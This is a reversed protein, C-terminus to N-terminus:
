FFWTAQFHARTADSVEIPPNMPKAFTLRAQARERLAFSLGLGASTLTDVGRSNNLPRFPQVEGYDVFAVLAGTWGADSELKLQRQLELNLTWGQDGSFVGPEFGRVSGEGGIQIQESSPLLKLEAYQWSFSSNLTWATDFSRSHRVAGRMLTYDRADSGEPRNTGSSVEATINLNSQSGLLQADLGLTGGALEAATLEVGSIWNATHRQKMTALADIQVDTSVKLPHRVSLTWGTAQGTIDLAAIPGDIIRTDDSNYSLTARTGWRTVPM